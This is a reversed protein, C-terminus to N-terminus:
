RSWRPTATSCAGNGCHAVKLDSNTSDYYSVVPFGDIGIAVSTYQGVDGATDVAISSNGSSCAPNGCHAVKLDGNAGEYYSVLPNGDTGIAISTYEAIAGPDVLTFTNGSSCSADGASLAISSICPLLEIPTAGGAAGCFGLWTGM